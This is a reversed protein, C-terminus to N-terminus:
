GEVIMEWTWGEELAAEKKWSGVEPTEEQERNKETQWINKEKDWSDMSGTDGFCRAIGSKLTGQMAEPFANSIFTDLQAAMEPPKQYGINYVEDAMKGLPSLPKDLETYRAQTPWPKLGDLLESSNSVLGWKYIDVSPLIPVHNPEYPKSPTDRLDM